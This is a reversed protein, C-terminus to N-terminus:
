RRAPVKVRARMGFDKGKAAWAEGAEIARTRELRDEVTLRSWDSESIPYKIARAMKPAPLVRVRAAIRKRRLRTPGSLRAGTSQM